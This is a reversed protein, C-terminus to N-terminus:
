KIRSIDRRNIHIYTLYVVNDIVEYFITTQKSLVAKRLSPRKKSCPFMFPNQVILELQRGFKRKFNEVEKSSWKHAIDELIEELNKISEETWRLKYVM